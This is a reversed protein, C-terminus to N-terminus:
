LRCPYYLSLFFLFHLSELIFFFKELQRCKAKQGARKKWGGGEKKEKGEKWTM